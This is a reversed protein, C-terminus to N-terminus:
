PNLALEIRQHLPTNADMKSHCILTHNVQKLLGTLRTNESSLIDVSTNAVQIQLIVDANENKLEANESQLRNITSTLEDFTKNTGEQTHRLRRELERCDRCENGDSQINTDYIM